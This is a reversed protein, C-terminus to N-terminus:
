GLRSEHRAWVLGSCVKPLFRTSKPPLLSGEAISAAFAAPPMPPLFFAVGAEGAGLMAALEDPDSRYLVTGDTAAAAPLGLAPLVAEQLLVVTLEAAAAATGAPAQEPDLRWVEPMGGSPWVGLAPQPAAAVAAAFARGAPAPDRWPRRDRALWGLRALAAPEPPPRLARHIPDITLSPAAVSTVVALKAAAPTGPAAGTERAYLQAVKYRHHGDAIAAPSAALLERYAALRRADTLRHLVHRHGDADRHAVLPPSAALDEELLRELAGGDESLLLVPELDVGTSRLLRLRDALPKALTQEHPRIIGSAPDELGVLATIGLRRGGSALEISYPYLAPEPDEVVVGSLLWSRHLRDAERYPDGAAGAVPKILHAFHHPSLAQLRDRLDDGIQDYPPSALRGPEPDATGGTGYLIGQFAHIRM